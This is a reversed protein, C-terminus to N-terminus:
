RTKSLALSLIYPDPEVTVLRPKSCEKCYQGSEARSKGNIQFVPSIEVKEKEITQPDLTEFHGCRFNVSISKM